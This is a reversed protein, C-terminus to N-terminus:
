GTRAPATCRVEEIDAGPVLSIDLRSVLERRGLLAAAADWDTVITNGALAASPGHADITGTRRLRHVQGAVLVNLATEDAPLLRDLQRGLLVPRQRMLMASFCMQPTLDHIQVSWTADDAPPATLDLGLLLAPQHLDPLLVRQIVFPHVARVGPVCALAEALSNQVGADGNSVYLDAAGALPTAARSGAKELNRNLIGTATWTAVGLAISVIVLLTRGWRLRWYRGSLTRHLSLM